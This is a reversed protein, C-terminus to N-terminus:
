SRRGELFVFEISTAIGSKLMDHYREKLASCALVGNINGQGMEEAAPEAADAM